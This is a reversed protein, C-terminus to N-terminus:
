RLLKFALRYSSLQLHQDQSKFRYGEGVISTFGGNNNNNPCSLFPGFLTSVETYFQM